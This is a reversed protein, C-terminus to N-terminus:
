FIDEESSATQLIGGNPLCFAAPMGPALGAHSSAGKETINICEESPSSLIPM